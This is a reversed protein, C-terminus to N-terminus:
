AAVKLRSPVHVPARAEFRQEIIKLAPLMHERFV